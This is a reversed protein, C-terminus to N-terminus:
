FTANSEMSCTMKFLDSFKKDQENINLYPNTFGYPTHHLKNPDYHINEPNGSFLLTTILYILAYNM